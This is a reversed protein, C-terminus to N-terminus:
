LSESERESGKNEKPRTNATLATNRVSVLNQYLPAGTDDVTTKARGLFQKTQNELTNLQAEYAPLRLRSCTIGGDRVGSISDPFEVNERCTAQLGAEALDMDM